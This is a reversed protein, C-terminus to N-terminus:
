TSGDPSPEADGEHKARQKSLESEALGILAQSAVQPAKLGGRRGHRGAYEAQELVQGSDLGADITAIEADLLASLVPWGPSAILAAVAEADAVLEDLPRRGYLDRIHRSFQPDVRSGANLSSGM